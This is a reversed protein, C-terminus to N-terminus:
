QRLRSQLRGAAGVANLERDRSAARVRALLCPDRLVIARERVPILHGIQSQSIVANDDGAELVGILDRARERGHFVVVGAALEPVAIVKEASDVAADM